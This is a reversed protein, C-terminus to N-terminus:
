GYSTIEKRTLQRTLEASTLVPLDREKEPSTPQLWYIEDADKFVADTYDDIVKM